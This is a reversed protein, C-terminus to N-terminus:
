TLHRLSTTKFYDILEGLEIITPRGARFNTDIHFTNFIWFPKATANHGHVSFLVGRNSYLRDQKFIHRDWLLDKVLEKKCQNLNQWDWRQGLTHSLGIKEGRYELLISLPCTVLYECVSQLIQKDVNLSWGGGNKVWLAHAKKDNALISELMMHEHNGLVMHVSLVKFTELLKISDKGRDIVDGLSILVDNHKDFNVSNLAYLFKEYDADLDGIVFVRQEDNIHLKIQSPSKLIANATIRM